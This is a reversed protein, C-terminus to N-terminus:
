QTRSVSIQSTPNDFRHAENLASTTLGDDATVVGAHIRVRNLTERETNFGEGQGGSAPGPITAASESNAETGADWTIGAFSITDGVDMGSIDVKNLGSIADNTNVLMSLVSLQLDSDSGSPVVLMITASTSRPLILGTSAHDLYQNAILADLLVESNDGSEALVEVSVSSPESETFISYGSSHAIIAAPSLPQNNTLNTVSVQYIENVVTAGQEGQEGQAGTEGTAGQEGAAGQAGTSGDDGSCAVLALLMLPTAIKTLINM